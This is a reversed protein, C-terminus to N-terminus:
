WLLENQRYLQVLWSLLVGREAIWKNFSLHPFHIHNKRSDGFDLIQEPSTKQYIQFNCSIILDFWTSFFKQDFYICISNSTFSKGFGPSEIQRIIPTEKGEMNLLIVWGNKIKEQESSSIWIELERSLYMSIIHLSTSIAAQLTTNTSWDFTFTLFKLFIWHWGVIFNRYGVKSIFLVTSYLLSRLQLYDSMTTFLRFPTPSHIGPHFLIAIYSQTCSTLTIHFLASILSLLPHKMKM